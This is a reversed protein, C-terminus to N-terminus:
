VVFSECLGLELSEELDAFLKRLARIRVEFSRRCGHGLGGLGQPLCLGCCLSVLCRSGGRRLGGSARRRWQVSLERVVEAFEVAALGFQGFSLFGGFPGFLGQFGSLGSVVFGQFVLSVVLGEKALILLSVSFQDLLEVLL